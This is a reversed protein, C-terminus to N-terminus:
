DCLSTLLLTNSCKLVYLAHRTFWHVSIYDLVSITHCQSNKGYVPTYTVAMPTPQWMVRAGPPTHQRRHRPSARSPLTVFTAPTFTMPMAVPRIAIPYLPTAHHHSYYEFSPANPNLHSSKNSQPRSLKQTQAASHQPVVATLQALLRLCSADSSLSIEEPLVTQLVSRVCDLTDVDTSDCAAYLSTLSAIDDDCSSSVESLKESDDGTSTPTLRESDMSQRNTLRPRECYGAPTTLLGDPSMDELHCSPLVPKPEYYMSSASVVVRKSPSTTCSTKSQESNCSANSDSRVLDSPKDSVLGDSEASTNSSSMKLLPLSAPRRSSTTKHATNNNSPTLTSDSIDVSWPRNDAVFADIDKQASIVADLDGFLNIETDWLGGRGRSKVTGKQWASTYWDDCDKTRM